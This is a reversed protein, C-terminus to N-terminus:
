RRLYAELARKRGTDESYHGDAWPNALNSGAFVFQAGAFNAIVAEPDHARMAEIWARTVREGEPGWRWARMFEAFAPEARLYKPGMDHDGGEYDGLFFAGGELAFRKTRARWELVRKLSGPGNGTPGGTIVWDTLERALADVGKTAIAELWMAKHADDDPASFFRGNQSGGSYYSAGSVGAMALWPAPDMGRDEFYARYGELAWVTTFHNALQVGIVPVWAQSRGARALAREFAHAMRAAAYGYGHSFNWGGEGTANRGTAKELGDALGWFYAKGRVFGAANNWHENALELYLRRDAPYGSAILDAVVRDAFKEWEDSDLIAVANPEAVEFRVANVNRFAADFSDPAGVYAPLHMWLAVDAELAMDFLLRPPAAFPADPAYNKGVGTASAAWSAAPLYQDVRRQRTANIAQIDLTRLIKYGSLQARFAPSLVRGARVEAEDAKRYVRLGRFSDSAETVTIWGWSKKDSAFDCEVRNDSITACRNAFALTARGEGEWEVVYTGAYWEPRFRAGFRVFGLRVGHFGEPIARPLMTEPNIFGKEWLEDHEMRAGDPGWAHLQPTNARSLVILPEEVNIYGLGGAGLQMIPLGDDTTPFVHAPQAHPTIVDSPSVPDFPAIRPLTPQGAQSAAAIRTEAAANEGDARACACSLAALGAWVVFGGYVMRNRFRM